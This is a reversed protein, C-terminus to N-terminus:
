GYLNLVAHEDFDHLLKEPYYGRQNSIINTRGISYPNNYHTHGHIWFDIVDPYKKILWELDSGEKTAKLLHHKFVPVSRITPAYHTVVITRGNFERSLESELFAVSNLHLRLFDPVDMNRMKGNGNVSIKIQKCIGQLAERCADNYADPGKLLFNPWLTCGLFRVGGIVVSKNELFHFDEVTDSLRELETHIADMKGGYYEHNGSVYIKPKGSFHDILWQAGRVGHDIDGAFVLVDAATTFPRVSGLENHYDSSYHIKM